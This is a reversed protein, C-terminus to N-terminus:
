AELTFTWPSLVDNPDLARKIKKLLRLTGEQWDWVSSPVDPPLRYQFTGGQRVFWERFERQCNYFNEVMNPDCDDLLYVIPSCMSQSCMPFGDFGPGREKHALKWRYFLEEIKHYVNPMQSIPYIPEDLNVLHGRMQEKTLIEQKNIHVKLSKLFGFTWLYTPWKTYIFEAFGPLERGNNGTCIEDILKKKGLIEENSWGNIISTIIFDCQVPLEFAMKEFWWKDGIHVEFIETSVMEMLAKTCRELQNRPWFYASFGWMPPKRLCRYAVKTVIGFAGNAKVFLGVLDPGTVYRHYPGFTTEMYGMSGVRVVDGTALVVELGEVLNINPGYRSAGVGIPPTLASAAVCPGPGYFAIPLLMNRKFLEQALKFFSCGSEAVAKMNQEDILLIKDMLVLDLLIGGTLPGGTGAGGAAGKVSVPIKYTNAVRLIEVIEEVTCPLVVIDPKRVLDMTYGINFAYSLCVYKSSNVREPGVIKRLEQVVYEQVSNKNRYM